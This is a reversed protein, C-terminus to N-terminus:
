ESTAVRHTTYTDLQASTANFCRRMESVLTGLQNLHASTALQEIGECRAALQQAGIGLAAGKIAHTIDALASRQEAILAADLRKLLTEVDGRFGSLLQAIFDADRSIRQVEQMRAHDILEVTAPQTPSSKLRPQKGRTARRALRDIVQLLAAAEFPKGVFEDAGAARARERAETTVSASLIIVPLRVGTAEMTRIATVVELGNREPMNFDLIALEPQGEEYLDLAEEGDSALLVSHGASELLKRIITQNTVNDEAVLIRLPQRHERLVQGLDIIEASDSIGRTTAAHIANRVVRAACNADLCAVGEIQRLRSLELSTPSGHSMYIMAVPADNRDKSLQSFLNCALDVDGAVVCAIASINKEQLKMVQMLASDVSTALEAYGCAAEVLSLVRSCIREDAIVVGASTGKRQEEALAVASSQAGSPVKLLPLEFWFTSGIGVTSKVGIAGGMLEVLQKAITTGLGTGGYRRTTSDDAQVFREFIKKLVDEDIGIGTDRVEFRVKLGEETEALLSVDINIQGQETFKIANSLLNLLVQRLHHSDGRLRYDIAPDVMAHLALGKAQAHPRLLRVLGNLTAHLDFEAVEITLRGAEIKSIDLVDDVLSRLLMVSHRLLRMLESQQLDLRTTQLLDAVGVIGNLPTRMEHSMNALFSSKARNAEEAKARAIEIRKLLTSVYLPLVVLAIMLSWGAVRHMAWYPAYTLTAAFGLLCLAQCAFLYPRGYRFGNGFTIFLYVGIMSVGSEGALFVCFTAAGADALMGTVRRPISPAPWACIAAFLAVALVLDCVLGGVLLPEAHRWSARDPSYAFGMYALVLSVIVVRLVAQEHESDPRAKLRDRLARVVQFLGEM